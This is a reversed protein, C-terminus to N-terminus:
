IRDMGVHLFERARASGFMRSDADVAFFTLDEQGDALSPAGEPGAILLAKAMAEATAARPALVTVSIWVTQAPRGTRPDILHHRPMGAQLWHRKWTSSTAVAGPPARLVALVRQDDRPDELGISWATEDSPYGIAFLDGGANVACVDAYDALRRAAGEALWGKAIGGLDLRLGPPLRIARTEPRLEIDEFRGPAPPLDVFSRATGEVRLRDMSKDYGVNELAELITPDFLGGTADYLRRAEQLLDFLLESAFFWEGASRNLRSLESDESFRSLRAEGDHLFARAAAFGRALDPAWGEAALVLHSNMARFEDYVM